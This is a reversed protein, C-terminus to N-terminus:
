FHNHNSLIKEVVTEAFEQASDPDRGTIVNGDVVVSEDLYNAGTKTLEKKDEPFCTANKDQLLGARAFIVPASCIASTIKKSNTFKISTHILKKNNWYNQIGSGGIVVIACFNAHNINYLMIDAKVKLGKQGTCLGNADSAIFVKFEAKELATKVALFENDSFNVSSIVILISKSKM